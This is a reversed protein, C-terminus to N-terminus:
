CQLGTRAERVACVYQRNAEESASSKPTFWEGPRVNDPNIVPDSMPLLISWMILTVTLTRYFRRTVGRM